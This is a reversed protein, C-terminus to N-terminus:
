FINLILSTLLKQIKLMDEQNKSNCFTQFFPLCNKPVKSLSPTKLISWWGGFRHAAVPVNTCTLPGCSKNPVAPPTPYSDCQTSVWVAYGSLTVPVLATRASELCLGLEYQQLEPARSGRRGDGAARARAGPCPDCQLACTHLRALALPVQIM